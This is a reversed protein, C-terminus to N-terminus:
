IKRTLFSTATATIIKLWRLSQTGNAYLPETQIAMKLNIIYNIGCNFANEVFGVDVPVPRTCRASIRACMLHCFSTGDLTYYAWSSFSCKLTPFAGHLTSKCIIRERGHCKRDSATSCITCYEYIYVLVHLVRQNIANMEHANQILKLNSNPISRDPHSTYTHTDHSVSEM